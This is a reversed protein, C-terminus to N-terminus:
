PMYNFFVKSEGRLKWNVEVLVHTKNKKKNYFNLVFSFSIM